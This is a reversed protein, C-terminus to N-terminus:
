GLLPEADPRNPGVTKYVTEPFMSRLQYTSSYRTRYIVEFADELTSMQLGGDGIWSVRVDYVGPTLMPTAAKLATVDTAWCELASALTDGARMGYCPVAAGDANIVDVLYPGHHPWSGEAPTLEIVQGGSDRVLIDGAPVTLFAIVFFASGYGSDLEEDAEPDWVWPLLGSPAGYGWDFADADYGPVSLESGSGSPAGYGHEAM